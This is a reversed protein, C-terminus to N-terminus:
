TQFFYEGFIEGWKKSAAPPWIDSKHSKKWKKRRRWRIWAWRSGKENIQFIQIRFFHHVLNFNGDSINPHPSFSLYLESIRLTMAGMAKIGYHMAPLIQLCFSVLFLRRFQGGSSIPCLCYCCYYALLLLLIDRCDFFQHSCQQLKLIVFRFHNVIKAFQLLINSSFRHAGFLYCDQSWAAETEAGM